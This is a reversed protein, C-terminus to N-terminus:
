EDWLKRNSGALLESTTQDIMGRLTEADVAQAELGMTGQVMRALRTAKATAQVRRFDQATQPEQFHIEVGLAAAIAQVNAFGPNKEKGSLIREVTPFSVGSRRAVAPRSMGLQHRRLELQSSWNATSIM